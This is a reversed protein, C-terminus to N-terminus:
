CVHGGQRLQGLLDQLSGELLGKLEPSRRDIENALDVMLWNVEDLMSRLELLVEPDDRAVEMISSTNDPDLGVQLVLSRITSMRDFLFACQAAAAPSAAAEKEVTGRICFWTRLLDEIHGLQMMATQEDASGKADSATVNLLDRLTTAMTPDFRGQNMRFLMDVRPLEFRRLVAEAVDALGVLRALMPVNQGSIAHPYGSGDLREHHQLVARAAAAPFGKMENLLVYGTVPHVHIFRREEATINHEPDLICPDTHMEGFDHCLSALLANSLDNRSLRGRQGVACVILATRLSHGFIEKHQEFLVTLRLRVTEPMSLDGLAQKALRPDGSRSLIRRYLPDNALIRDAELALFTGGVPNDASLMCDLPASLRHRTLREYQKSDIRSGKGVLKMGNSAFIDESALVERMDGMATMSRIYHPNEGPLDGVHTSAITNQM